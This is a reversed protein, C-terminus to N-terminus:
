SERSIYYCHGFRQRQENFPQFQSELHPFPPLSGFHKVAPRPRIVLADRRPSTQSHRSPSPPRSSTSAPSGARSSSSSSTGRHLMSSADIARRQRGVVTIPRDVRSTVIAPLSNFQRGGTEATVDSVRESRLLTNEVGGRM